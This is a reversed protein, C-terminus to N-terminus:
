EQGEQDEAQSLSMNGPNHVRQQYQIIREVVQGAKEKVLIKERTTLTLITDPTSEVAQILEANIYYPNGNLHTVLIM